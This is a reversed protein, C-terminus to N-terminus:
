GKSPQQHAPARRACQTNSSKRIVSVNQYLLIPFVPKSKSSARNAGSARLRSAARGGPRTVAWSAAEGGPEQNKEKMYGNIGSLTERQHPAPPHDSTFLSPQTPCLCLSWRAGIQTPLPHPELPDWPVCPSPPPSPKGATFSSLHALAWPICRRHPCPCQTAMPLGGLSHCHIAHTWKVLDRPAWM